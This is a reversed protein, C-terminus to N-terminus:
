QHSIIKEAIDVLLLQCQQQAQRWLLRVQFAVTIEAKTLSPNLYVKNHIDQNLSHWLRRPAHNLQQAQNAQKLCVLLPQIKGMQTHRLRKMSTINPRMSLEIFCLSAFPEDDPRGVASELGNVILSLECRRKPSQEINEAGVVSQQFTISQRQRWLQRKSTLESWRDQEIGDNQNPPQSGWCTANDVLDTIGLLSLMYNLQRKWEQIETHQNPIVLRLVSIKNTFAIYPKDMGTMGPAAVQSSPM